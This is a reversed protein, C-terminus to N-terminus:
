NEAHLSVQEDQCIAALDLLTTQIRETHNTPHVLLCRLLHSGEREELRIYRGEIRAFLRAAPKLTRCLMVVTQTQINTM